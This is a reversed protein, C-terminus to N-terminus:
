KFNFLGSIKTGADTITGELIGSLGAVLLAALTISVLAVGLFQIIEMGEDNNLAEMARFQADSLKRCVNNYMKKM